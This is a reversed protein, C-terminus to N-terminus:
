LTRASNTLKTSLPLPEFLRLADRSFPAHNSALAAERKTEATFSRRQRREM